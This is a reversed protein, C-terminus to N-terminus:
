QYLLSSQMDSLAKRYPLTQNLSLYSLLVQEIDFAKVMLTGNAIISYQNMCKGDNSFNVKTNNDSDTLEIDAVGAILWRCSFSNKLSNTDAVYSNFTKGNGAKGSMNGSIEFYDNDSYYPSPTHKYRRFSQQFQYTISGITDHLERSINTGEISFLYSGDNTGGKNIISLNGVNVTDFDYFFNIFTFNVVALSDFFSTETSAEYKGKRFHGYGDERGWAPYEIIIKAPDSSYSVNAGDIEAIGDALVLSDTIAKFYTNLLLDTMQQAEVYGSITEVTQNYDFSTNKKSCSTIIIILSLLFSKTLIRLIISNMNKERTFKLHTHLSM